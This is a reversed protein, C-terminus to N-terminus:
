RPKKHNTQRNNHLHDPEHRTGILFDAMYEFGGVAKYRYFLGHIAGYMERSACGYGRVPCGILRLSINSASLDALNGVTGVGYVQATWQRKDHIEILGIDLDVYVNKGPWEPYLEQFLKRRLQKKSSVGIEVREGNLISYVREGPEGAVHRNTLAYVLHGDTL